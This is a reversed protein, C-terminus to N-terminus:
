CGSILRTYEAITYDAVESPVVMLVTKLGDVAGEHHLEISQLVIRQLM